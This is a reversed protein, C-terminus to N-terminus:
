YMAMNRSATERRAYEPDTLMRNKHVVVSMHSDHIWKARREPTMEEPDLTANPQLVFKREEQKGRAASDIFEM